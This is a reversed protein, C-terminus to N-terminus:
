GDGVIARWGGAVDNILVQAQLLDDFPVVLWRRSNEMRSLLTMREVLHPNRLMVGTAIEIVLLDGDRQATMCPVLGLFADPEPGSGGAVRVETDDRTYSCVMNRVLAKYTPSTARLFELDRQEASKQSRADQREISDERTM